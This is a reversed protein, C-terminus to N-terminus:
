KIMHKYELFIQELQQNILLKRSKKQFINLELVTLTLITVNNNLSYLAIWHTGM